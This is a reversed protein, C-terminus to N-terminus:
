PRARGSRHQHYAGCHHPTCPYAEVALGELINMGYNNRRSETRAQQVAEGQEEAEQDPLTYFAFPNRATVHWIM